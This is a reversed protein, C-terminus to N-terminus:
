LPSLTQEAERATVCNLSGILRLPDGHWDRLAEISLGCSFFLTTLIIYSVTPPGGGRGVWLQCPRPSHDNIVEESTVSPGLPAM